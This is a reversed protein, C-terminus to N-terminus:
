AGIPILKAERPYDLLKAKECIAIMHKCTNYKCWYSCSCKNVFDDFTQWDSAELESFHNICDALKLIKNNGAPTCYHTERLRNYKKV